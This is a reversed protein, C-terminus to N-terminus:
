TSRPDAPRQNDGPTLDGKFLDNVKAVLEAPAAKSKDQVQGSGTGDAPDIKIAHAGTLTLTSDGPRKVTYATLKLASLDVGDRGRGGAEVSLAAALNKPSHFQLWDRENAFLELQQALGNLSDTM